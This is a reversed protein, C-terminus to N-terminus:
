QVTSVALVSSVPCVTVSINYGLVEAKKTNTRNAAVTYQGFYSNLVVGGYQQTNNANLAGSTKTM